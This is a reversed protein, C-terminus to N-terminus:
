LECSHEEIRDIWRNLKQCKIRFDPELNLTDACVTVDALEMAIDSDIEEMTKPTFNEGRIKRAKKLLAQALETCEEAMQEYIAAQSLGIRVIELDKSYTQRRKHSIETFIM